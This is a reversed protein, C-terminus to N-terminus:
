RKAFNLKENGKKKGWIKTSNQLLTLFNSLFGIDRSLNVSMVCLDVNADNDFCIYAAHIGCGEVWLKV